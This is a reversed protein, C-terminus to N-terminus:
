LNFLRNFLGKKQPKKKTTSEDNNNKENEKYDNLELELRQLKNKDKLSLQQQQDLLRELNERSANAVDLQEKLVNILTDKSSDPTTRHQEKTTSQQENTHSATTSGSVGFSEALKLFAHHDYELPDNKFTRTNANLAKIDLKILRRRVNQRPQDLAQALQKITYKENNM